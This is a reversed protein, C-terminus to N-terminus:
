RLCNIIGDTNAATKKQHYAIMIYFFWAQQTLAFNAYRTWRGTKYNKTICFRSNGYAFLSPCAPPNVSCWESDRHIFITMNYLNLKGFPHAQKRGDFSLPNTLTYLDLFYTMFNELYLRLSKRPLRPFPLGSNKPFQLMVARHYLQTATQTATSSTKALGPLRIFTTKDPFLHLSSM